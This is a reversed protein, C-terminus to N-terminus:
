ESILIRGFGVIWQGRVIQKLGWTDSVTSGYYSSANIFEVTGSENDIQVVLGGHSISNEESTIFIVDGPIVEDLSLLRVNHEYIDAMSVDDVVTVGNYFIREEKLSEKYSWVILGSCDFEDPGDAGWLYDSDIKSQAKELAKEAIIQSVEQQDPTYDTLVNQCSTFLFLLLLIFSYKLM